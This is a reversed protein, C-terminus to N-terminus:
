FIKGIRNMMDKKHEMMSHVYRSLTVSPNKHGLIESLTKVDMGCELARTAFTHRLSHFGRHSVRIKYLLNGFSRQYSRVSFTSGKSSVLFRYPAKRKWNSMFPLLQKPLPIKRESSPTKPSGIVRCMKGNADVGDYCTKTVNIIGKVLDIDSWELAMLEGVRLGTYLCLIIGYYKPNRKEIIYKEIKKQEALSFCSVEKEKLRPRKVKDAYYVRTVGCERAMRLSSQIMTIMGNITNASLGGGTIQNGRQMRETLFRQIVIPTLAELEYRGLGRKIHVRILCEYRTYTREKSTPKVYNELWEDLWKSYKM